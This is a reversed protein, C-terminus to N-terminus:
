PRDTQRDTRAGDTRNYTEFSKDRGEQGGGGGGPTIGIARRPCGLYRANLIRGPLKARPSLTAGFSLSISAAERRFGEVFAM